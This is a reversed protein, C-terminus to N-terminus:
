VDVLQGNASQGNSNSPQPHAYKVPRWEGNIRVGLEFFLVYLFTFINWVHGSETNSVNFTTADNNRPKQHQGGKRM